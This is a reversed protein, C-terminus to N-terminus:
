AVEQIQEVNKVPEIMGRIPMQLEVVREADSILHDLGLKAFLVRRIRLCIDNGKVFSYCTRPRQKYISCHSSEGVKGKWFPCAGSKLSIQPDFLNEVCGPRISELLKVDTDCDINISWGLGTGIMSQCCGGCKSCDLNLAKANDKGKQIWELISVSFFSAGNGHLRWRNKDTNRCLYKLSRLTPNDPVDTQYLKGDIEVILQDRYYALMTCNM